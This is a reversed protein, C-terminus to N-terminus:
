GILESDATEFNVGDKSGTVHYTNNLPMNVM